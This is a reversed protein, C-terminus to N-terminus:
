ENLVRRLADIANEVSSDFGGINVLDVDFINMDSLLDYDYQYGIFGMKSASFLSLFTSGSSSHLCWKSDNIVKIQLYLHPVIGFYDKIDITNNIKFVDKNRYNSGVVVVDVGFESKAIDSFQQWNDQKWHREDLISYRPFICIYRESNFPLKISKDAIFKRFKFQYDHEKYERVNGGLQYGFWLFDPTVWRDFVIGEIFHRSTDFNFGSWEIIPGVAVDGCNVYDDHLSAYEDAFEYFVDHNKPGCVIIYDDM